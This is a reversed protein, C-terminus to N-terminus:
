NPNNCIMASQGLLLVCRKTWNLMWPEAIELYRLRQHKELSKLTEFIVKTLKRQIEKFKKPNRQIQGGTVTSARGVQGAEAFQVSHSLRLVSPSLLCKFPASLLYKCPASLLYKCKCPASTEECDRILSRGGRTPIEIPERTYHSHIPGIHALAAECIDPYFRRVDWETKNGIRGCSGYMFFCKILCWTKQTAFSDIRKKQEGKYSVFYIPYLLM